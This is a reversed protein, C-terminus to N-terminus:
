TSCDAPVCHRPQEVLLGTHAGGLEEVALTELVEVLVVAVHVEAM